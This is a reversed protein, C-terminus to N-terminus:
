SLASNTVSFNSRIEAVINNGAPQMQATVKNSCNNDYTMYVMKIFNKLPQLRTGLSTTM